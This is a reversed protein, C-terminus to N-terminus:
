LYDFFRIFWTPPHEPSYFAALNSRGDYRRALLGEPIVQDDLSTPAGEVRHRDEEPLIGPKEADTYGGLRQPSYVALDGFSSVQIHIDQGGATHDAPVIIHSHHSADQGDRYVQCRCAFREDLREAPQEFRARAELPNYGPPTTSRTWWMPWTESM